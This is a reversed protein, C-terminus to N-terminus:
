PHRLRFFQQRPAPSTAPVTWQNTSQSGPLDGWATSATLGVSNTQLFWGVYNVPWSLVLNSRNLSADLTVPVPVLAFTEWLGTNIRNNILPMTGASEACVDMNNVLARLSISGDGNDTWQFTQALGASASNALLPAAGTPSATVFLNNAACKLAVCGYWYPGAQDM